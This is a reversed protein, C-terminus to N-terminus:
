AIAPGGDEGRELRLGEMGIVPRAIRERRRPSGTGTLRLTVGRDMDGRGEDIGPAAIAAPLIHQEELGAGVGDMELAPGDGIGM